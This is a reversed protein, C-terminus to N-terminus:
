NFGVIYSYIGDYTDLHGTVMLMMGLEIAIHGETEPHKNLDSAMSSFAERFEGRDVYYSKLAKSRIFHEKMIVEVMDVLLPLNAKAKAIAFNWDVFEEDKM